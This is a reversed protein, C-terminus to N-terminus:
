SVFVKSVDELTTCTAGWFKQKDELNTQTFKKSYSVFGDGNDFAPSRSLGWRGNPYEDWTNTQKLYSSPKNAWFIPRVEEGKRGASTHM